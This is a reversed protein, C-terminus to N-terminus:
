RAKGRQQGSGQLLRIGKPRLDAGGKAPHMPGRVEELVTRDAAGQFQPPLVASQQRLHEPLTRGESREGGRDRVKDFDRLAVPAAQEVAVLDRIQGVGVVIQLVEEARCAVV